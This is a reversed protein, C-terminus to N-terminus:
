HETLLLNNNEIMHFVVGVLWKKNIYKIAFFVQSTLIKSKKNRFKLKRVSKM